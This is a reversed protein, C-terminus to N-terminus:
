AVEYCSLDAHHTSFRPAHGPMALLLCPNPPAWRPLLRIPKKCGTELGLALNPVGGPCWTDGSQGTTVNERQTSGPM